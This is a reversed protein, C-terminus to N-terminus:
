SLKSTWHFENPVRMLLACHLQDVLSQKNTTPLLGARLGGARQTHNGSKAPAQHFQNQSVTCNISWVKNTEPLRGVRSGRASIRKGSKVPAQHFQIQPVICNISWVQNTRPLLGVRLGWANIHNGSKIPAQHFQNQSM